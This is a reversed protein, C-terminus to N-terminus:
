RCGGRGARRAAGAGLVVPAVHDFADLGTSRRGDGARRPGHGRAAASGAAVGDRPRARRARRGPVSGLAVCLAALFAQPVLMLASSKARRRGGSREAAVGPLQHRVGERFLGCGARGHAGAARRGRSVPLLVLPEASGRFGFLFAQFTLWESAFGNLPPLGSIAMAGVLFCLAPGRCGGCCGASSRSRGRAPRRRGRQRRRPVAPGQVRRPEARPVPQRRDGGGRRRPPRVVAGDDGAGLGLLIIGINEISHYALLRKLDHQMLAYLVGLVASVGGVAVVFVGWSLRPVGLGFACVRVM